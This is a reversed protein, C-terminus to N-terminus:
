AKYNHLTTSNLHMTHGDMLFKGYEEAQEAIAIYGFGAARLADKSDLVLAKVIDAFEDYNKQTKRPFVLIVENTSPILFNYTLTTSM